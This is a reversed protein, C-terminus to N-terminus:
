AGDRPCEGCYVRHPIPVGPSHLRTHGCALTLLKNRGADEVQEILRRPMRERPRAM